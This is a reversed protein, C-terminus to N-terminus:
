EANGIGGPTALLLKHVLTEQMARLHEMSRYRDYEARLIEDQALRDQLALIDTDFDGNNAREILGSVEAATLITVTDACGAIYLAYNRRDMAQKNLM